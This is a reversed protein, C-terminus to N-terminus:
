FTTKAGTTIKKLINTFFCRIPSDMRSRWLLQGTAPNMKFAFSQITTVLANGVGIIQGEADLRMDTIIDVGAAMDMSRAWIVNMNKDTLAVIMEEGASAAVFFTENPAAVIKYGRTSQGPVFLRKIFSAECTSDGCADGTKFELTYTAITDCGGTTSPLNLTVTGPLNYTSDGLTVSEGPCFELVETLQVPPLVTIFVSDTQVFGCFDKVEVRYIGTTLVTFAPNASGDQWTYQYFGSGANLELAGSGCVARDPGLDPVPSAPKVFEGAALNNSYDCEEIATNHLSDLSFPTPHSGDDNAVAVLTFQGGNPFFSAIDPIVIAQCAGSDVVASSSVTLLLNANGTTPNADYLTVPTNAPLPAPGANCIRLRVETRGENCYISDVFVTADTKGSCSDTCIQLCIPESTITEPAVTPLSATGYNHNVNISSLTHASFFLPDYDRVEVTMPKIYTCPVDSDVEGDLYLKGILMDFIQANQASGILLLKDAVQIIDSLRDEGNLGYSKQWLVNGDKDTKILFIEKGTTTARVFTGALLYGDPFNLIKFASQDTGGAIDYEKAWLLEGTPSTKMLQLTSMSLNTGSNTGYGFLMIGGNDPLLSSAYLRANVAGSRLYHWSWQVNGAMDLATLAARFGAQGANNLNYRGCAYVTNNEIYVDYFAECSGLNYHKDWLLAGSNRDIEMLLADCGTGGSAADTQGLLFYNGSGDDNKELINTFYSNIPSNQQSRWLLQGTAPDMKFAFCQVPSTLANGVGILYGEADLRMDQIADPGGALDVSRAWIVNMNKDTLAIITNEDASAAVFFTENPAPVIKYGQTSKGQVFLRKFFSAECTSDICANGTKHELTYTAITDCGGTTSPLNLTVTGPQHYTSDGLTVSEGPCFQITQSIEPQVNSCFDLVPLIATDAFAFQFPVTQEFTAENIQEQRPTVPIDEVVITPTAVCCGDVIGLSDTKIWIANQNITPGSINQTYGTAFFGGDSTQTIDNIFLWPTGTFTRAWVVAGATDIKVLASHIIGVQTSPQFYLGLVCTGDALMESATVNSVEGANYIKSWIVQGQPDAKQVWGYYRFLGPIDKTINGTMIQNGEPTRHMNYLWNISDALYERHQVIEGTSINMTRWAGLSNATGTLYLMSDVVYHAHMSSYNNSPTFQSWLTNGANNVRLIFPQYYGPNVKSGSLIYGDPMAIIRGSPYESFGTEGITKQWLLNGDDDLKVLWADTRNLNFNELAGWVIFGGDNAPAIDRFGDDAFQGYTKKWIVTGNKDLKILLADTHDNTPNFTEGAILYGDATELMDNVVDYGAGGYTQQFTATQSFLNSCFLSILGSLALRTSCYVMQYLTHNAPPPAGSNSSIHQKDAFKYGFDAAPQMLKLAIYLM